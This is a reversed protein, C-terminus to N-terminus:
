KRPETREAASTTTPLMALPEVWCESIYVAPIERYRCYGCIKTRSCKCCISPAMNRPVPERHRLVRARAEERLDAIHQQPVGATDGMDSIPRSRALLLDGKILHALRFNPNTKLLQEIGSLASDM